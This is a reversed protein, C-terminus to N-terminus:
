SVGAALLASLAVIFAWVSALGTIRAVYRSLLDIRKVDAPRDSWEPTARLRLWAAPVGILEAFILGGFVLKLVVPPGFSAVASIWQM